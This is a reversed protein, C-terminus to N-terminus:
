VQKRFRVKFEYQRIPGRFMLKPRFSTNELINTTFGAQDKDPFYDFDTGGKVAAWWAKWADVEGKAPDTGEPVLTLELELFEETRELISQRFKGSSSLTDHRVAKEDSARQRIPEFAFVLTTGGGSPYIIKPLAM